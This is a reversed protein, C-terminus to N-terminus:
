YYSLRISFRPFSKFSYKVFFFHDTLVHFSARTGLDDPFHLNSGRSFVCVGIQIALTFVALWPLHQHPCPAMPSRTGQRHSHFIFCASQLCRKSVDKLSVWGEVMHGLLGVGLYKCLLILLTCGWLSKCVFTGALKLCFPEFSSGVWIDM